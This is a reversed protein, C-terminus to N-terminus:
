DEGQDKRRKSKPLRRWRWYRKGSFECKDRLVCECCKLLPKKPNAEAYLYKMLCIM